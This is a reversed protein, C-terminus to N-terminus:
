TTVCVMEITSHCVDRRVDSSDDAFPAHLEVRGVPSLETRKDDRVCPLTPPEPREEAAPANLNSVRQYEREVRFEIARDNLM